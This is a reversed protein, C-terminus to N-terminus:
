FRFNDGSQMGFSAEFSDEQTGLTQMFLEFDSPNTAAAKATDYDVLGTDVLQKLHQGFSQMGYSEKGAEVLSMIEDAPKAM